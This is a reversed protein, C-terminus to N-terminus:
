SKKSKKKYTKKKSDEEKKVVVAAAEEEAKAKKEEKLLNDSEVILDDLVLACGDLTLIQKRIDEQQVRIQDIQGEYKEIIDLGKQRETDVWDRKQSILTRLRMDDIRRVDDMRKLTREMKARKEPPIRDVNRGKLKM